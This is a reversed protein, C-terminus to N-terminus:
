FKTKLITKNLLLVAAEKDFFLIKVPCYTALSVILFSRKEEQSVMIDRNKLWHHTLLLKDTFNGFLYEIGKSVSVNKVINKKSKQLLFVGRISIPKKEFGGLHKKDFPSSFLLFAAGKKKIIATDNSYVDEEEFKKVITTKGFGSPGTFVYGGSNSICSSAHLCLINKSLCCFSIISRVIYNINGPHSLREKSLTILFPFPKKIEFLVEQETHKITLLLYPAQINDDALVYREIFYEYLVREEILIRCLVDACYLQLQFM